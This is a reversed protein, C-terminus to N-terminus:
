CIFKSHIYVNWGNHYRHEKENQHVIDHSILDFTIAQIKM